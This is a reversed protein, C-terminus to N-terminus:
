YRVGEKLGTPPNNGALHDACIDRHDIHEIAEDFGLFDRNKRNGALRIVGKQHPNGVLGIGIDHDDRPM